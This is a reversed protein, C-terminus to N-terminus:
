KSLDFRGSVSLVSRRALDGVARAGLPRRVPVGHAKPAPRVAKKHKRKAIDARIDTVVKETASTASSLTSIASTIPAIQTLFAILGAVLAPLVITGSM